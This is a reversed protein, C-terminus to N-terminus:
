TAGWAAQGNSVFVRVTNTALTVSTGGNIADGRSPVVTVTSASTNMVMLVAGVSAGHGSAPPLTLTQSAGGTFNVIAASPPVPGSAILFAVPYSAVDQAASLDDLADRVNDMLRSVEPDVARFTNLLGKRAM